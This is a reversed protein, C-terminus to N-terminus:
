RRPRKTPEPRPPPPAPRPPEAFLTWTESRESVLECEEESPPEWVPNESTSWPKEGPPTGRIVTIRWHYEWDYALKIQEYKYYLGKVWSVDIPTNFDNYKNWIEVRFYDNPGLTGDWMWELDLRNHLAVTAGDLPKLLTPASALTPTPSAPIPTPTPPSEVVPIGNLDVNIQVYQTLATVWALSGSNGPVVQIWDNSAVRGEVDLIDGNRLYGIRDYNIGPGSRLNLGGGWVVVAEPKQMTPTPLPMTSTLSPTTPTPPLTSTYSAPTYLPTETSPTSTAVPTHTLASFPESTTILTAAPEEIATITTSIIESKGGYRVEVSVTYTKPVHPTFSILDKSEGEQVEGDISWIYVASESTTGDVWVSVTEGSHVTGGSRALILENRVTRTPNETPEPTLHCSAVLLLGIVVVAIWQASELLLWAYTKNNIM